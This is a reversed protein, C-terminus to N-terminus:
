LCIRLFIQYQTRQVWDSILSSGLFRKKERKLVMVRHIEFIDIVKAVIQSHTAKQVLLLTMHSIEVSYM